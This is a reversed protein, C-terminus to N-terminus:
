YLEVTRGADRLEQISRDACDHSYVPHQTTHVFSGTQSNFIIDTARGYILDSYYAYHPAGNNAGNISKLYFMHLFDNTTDMCAITTPLRRMTELLPANAAPVAAEVAEVYSNIIMLLTVALIINKM